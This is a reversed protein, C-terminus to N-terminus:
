IRRARLETLKEVVFDIRDQGWFIDEGIRFTPVGIVGDALASDANRKLTARNEESRAASLTAQPDLGVRRAINELAADEGINQGYEWEERMTEIIYPRLKGEAEAYLSAAGAATPETEMPPPNVPIGLRRAHRQLDQRALPLKLKAREPDSRLNWGGVPHWILRTEFDDFIPWMLKSALYAYPSRFNFYVHVDVTNPM